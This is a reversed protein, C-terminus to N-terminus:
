RAPRLFTPSRAEVGLRGAGMSEQPSESLSLPTSSEMVASGVGAPAMNDLRLLYGHKRCARARADIPDGCYPCRTEKAAKAAARQRARWARDYARSRELHASRWAARKASAVKRRDREADDATLEARAESILTRIRFREEATLRAM